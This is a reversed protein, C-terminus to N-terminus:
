RSQKEPDTIGVAQNCFTVYKRQSFIIIWHLSRSILRTHRWMTFNLVFTSKDTFIYMDHKNTLHLYKIIHCIKKYILYAQAYMVNKQKNGFPQRNRRLGVRLEDGATKPWVPYLLCANKGQKTGYTKWKKGTATANCFFSKCLQLKL